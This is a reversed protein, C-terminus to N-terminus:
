NSSSGAPRADTLVRSFDPNDARVWKLLAIGSWFLGAFPLVVLWLLFSGLILLPELYFAKPGIQRDLITAEKPARYTENRVM